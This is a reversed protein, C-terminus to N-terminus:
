GLQLWEGLSEELGEVINVRSGFTLLGDGGFQQLTHEAKSTHCYQQGMVGEGAATKASSAITSNEKAMIDQSHVVVGVGPLVFVM